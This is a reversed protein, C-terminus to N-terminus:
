YQVFWRGTKIRKAAFFDEAFNHTKVLFLTNSDHQHRVVHFINRLHRVAQENHIIAFDEQITRRQINEEIM